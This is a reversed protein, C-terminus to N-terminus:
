IHITNDTKQIHGDYKLFVAENLPMQLFNIYKEKSTVVGHCKACLPFLFPDEWAHVDNEDKFGFLHDILVAPRIFGLADCRVCIPNKSMVRKRTQKWRYSNYVKTKKADRNPKETQTKHESCLGFKEARKRCNPIKCPPRSDVFAM